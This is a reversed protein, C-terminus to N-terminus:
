AFGNLREVAYWENAGHRQYVLGYMPGEVRLRWDSEPQKRAAGEAVRGHRQYGRGDDGGWLDRWVSEGDRVLAVIGFGPHVNANLNLRASSRTPCCLCSSQVREVPLPALATV